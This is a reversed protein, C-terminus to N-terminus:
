AGVPAARATIVLRQEILESGLERVNTKHPDIDFVFGIPNVRDLHFIEWGDQDCGRVLGQKKTRHQRVNVGQLAQNFRLYGTICPWRRCVTIHLTQDTFKPLPDTIRM